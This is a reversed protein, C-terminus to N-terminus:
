RISGRGYISEFRLCLKLRYETPWEFSLPILKENVILVSVALSRKDTKPKYREIKFLKNNDTQRDQYRTFLQDNEDDSSQGVSYRRFNRDFSSM